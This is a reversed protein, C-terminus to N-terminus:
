STAPSSVAISIVKQHNFTLSLSVTLLSAACFNSTSLNLRLLWTLQLNPFLIMNLDLVTKCSQPVKVSALVYIPSPFVNFLMGFRLYFSDLDLHISAAYFM